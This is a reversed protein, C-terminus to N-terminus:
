AVTRCPSVSSMALWGSMSTIPSAPSPRMATVRARSSCGDTTTSSMEMGSIFPRAAVRSMRRNEGSVALARKAINKGLDGTRELDGAIKLVTMIHRLDVAMPQRRAIMQITM